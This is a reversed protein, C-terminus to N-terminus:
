RIRFLDTMHHSFSQHILKGALFYVPDNCFRNKNRPFRKRHFSGSNKIFFFLLFFYLLPEPMYEAHETNKCIYFFSLLKLIFRLQKVRMSSRTTIAIIAISEREFFENKRSNEAM